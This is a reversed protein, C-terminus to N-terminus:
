FGKAGLRKPQRWARVRWSSLCRVCLLTMVMTSVRADRRRGLGMSVVFLGGALGALAGKGTMLSGAAKVTSAASSPASTRAEFIAASSTTATTFVAAATRFAGRRMILTLFAGWVALFFFGFGFSAGGGGHRLVTKLARGWAHRDVSESSRAMSRRTAVRSTCAATSVFPPQAPGGDRLRSPSGGGASWMSGVGAGAGAGASSLGAVGMSSAAAAASAAASASAAAAAAVKSSSVM